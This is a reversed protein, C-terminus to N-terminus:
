LNGGRIIIIGFCANSSHCNNESPGLNNTHGRKRKSIFCLRTNAHLYIPIKKHHLLEKLFASQIPQMQCFLLQQAYFGVLNIRVFMNTSAALSIGSSSKM